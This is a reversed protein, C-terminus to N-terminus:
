DKFKALNNKNSTYYIYGYKLYVQCLRFTEDLYNLDYVYPTM